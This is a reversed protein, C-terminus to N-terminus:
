SSENASIRLQSCHSFTLYLCLKASLRHHPWAFYVHDLCSFIYCPLFIGLALYLIPVLTPSSALVGFPWPWNQVDKHSFLVAGDAGWHVALGGVCVLVQRELGMMWRCTLSSNDLCQQMCSLGEHWWTHAPSLLLFMHGFGKLPISVGCTEDTLVGTWCTWGFALCCHFAHMASGEKGGHITQTGRCFASGKEGEMRIVKCCSSICEFSGTDIIWLQHHM